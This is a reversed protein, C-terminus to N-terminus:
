RIERSPRGILYGQLLDCGLGSLADREDPTEVGEGVVLTGVEHCLACLAGITRQKLASKHVDRVLSMDIKVVEPMLETFSTLGSYGAGIDDVALRFGLQRLRDIRERLMPSIELSARETIELIVRPAIRTLLASEDVLDIDLLDDPHLNVFLALDDKRTAFAASALGRVKRGILPLRGLQTAADLLAPPHPFSPESSRMLAEHGFPAGSTAHVIPQFAMWLGAVAQDFRVELGARDAAGAHAGTVNFAERRIRALAHARAAHGVTQLLVEADVPKTLYRFAGYEVAAAAADLSPDGTMLIVPVDLDIRRVARLLDLGGGDPMRVDSVVVDFPRAELAGIARFGSDAEVVEFGAKRLLRAVFRRVHDDDDVVLAHREVGSALRPPPQTTTPGPPTRAAAARGLAGRLESPGFPKQLIQEVSSMSPMWTSPPYGSMQVIVVDPRLERLQAPLEDGRADPLIVDALVVDIVDEHSVCVRRAEEATAAMVISCGADQLVRAAVARVDPDDDVVLVHLPPLVQPAATEPSATPAVDGSAAPIHVRFTSGHGLESYVSVAGGAQAVIGHVISLGLGTGKAEEKTTFFPEFIRRQTAADMGVGTDTVALEVYRGAALGRAAAAEADLDLTRSGITLRGGDPMADRANIVLNMVVQEIQGADAVINTGTGRVTSISIAEGALRQLMPVLNAVLEDPDISSPAAKGRRALTLLQRTIASGRESARRIQVVDAHRTDDPEFTEELIWALTQIVTLVNNFDHAVGGALRGIAEMKQSHRLQDETSRLAQETRLRETVDDAFVLRVHKGDVTFDNARVQISIITGDKKRHRWVRDDRILGTSRSVDARLLAVDEPPRIDALTMGSFEERTYGYHHIAADNVAVFGLTELDYTWMPVPSQEFMVRYRHESTAARREEAATYGEGIQAVVLDIFHDMGRSVTTVHEFNREPAEALFAALEGRIADKYARLIGFWVAFEIGSSAFHEGRAFLNALYPDWRGDVVADRQMAACQADDGYLDELGQYRQVLRSAIERTRATIAPRRADIFRWYERLAEAEAPTSEYRDIPRM